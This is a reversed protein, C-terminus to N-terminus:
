LWSSKLGLLSRVWILKLSIDLWLWPKVSLLLMLRCPKWLSPLGGSVRRFGIFAMLKLSGSVGSSCVGRPDISEMVIDLAVPLSANTM